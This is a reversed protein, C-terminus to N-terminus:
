LTSLFFCHFQALAGAWLISCTDVFLSLAGRRRGLNHFINRAVIFSCWPAPGFYPVHIPFIHFPALSGVWLISVTDLFYSVAVLRRSLTHVRIDYLYLVAGLRLGLTDFVYPILGFRRWAAPWFYSCLISLDSVSGPRRGLTHVHISCIHFQALAGDWVTFMYRYKYSVAGLRRGLTHVVYRLNHFPALAAAWSISFTDFLYSVAGPGQGLTHVCISFTHFRALAGDWLISVNYFCYSVADPRRGVLISCMVFIHFQALAGAWPISCISCTHFQM